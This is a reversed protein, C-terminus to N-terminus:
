SADIADPSELNFSEKFKGSSIKKKTRANQFTASEAQNWLM